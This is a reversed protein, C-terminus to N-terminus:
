GKKGRLHVDGAPEDGDDDDDDEDDDVEQEEEEEEEQEEQEDDEEVTPPIPEKKGGKKGRRKSAASRAKEEELAAKQEKYVALWFADENVDVEACGIYNDTEWPPQVSGDRLVIMPCAETKGSGTEMLAFLPVDVYLLKDKGRPAYFVAHYKRQIPCLQLIKFM